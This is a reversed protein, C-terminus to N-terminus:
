SVIVPQVSRLGSKRQLVILASHLCLSSSAAWAGHLSAWYREGREKRIEQVGLDSLTRGRQRHM